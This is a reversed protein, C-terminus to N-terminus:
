QRYFSGGFTVLVCLGATTCLETMSLPMGNQLVSNLSWNVTIVSDANWVVKLM